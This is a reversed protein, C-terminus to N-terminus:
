HVSLVGVCVCECLMYKCFISAFQSNPFYQRCFGVRLIHIYCMNGKSLTCAFHEFHFAFSKYRASYYRQMLVLNFNLLYVNLRLDIFTRIQNTRHHLAGISHIHPKITHTTGVTYCCWAWMCVYMAFVYRCRFNLSYILTTSAKINTIREFFNIVRVNKAHYERGVLKISEM